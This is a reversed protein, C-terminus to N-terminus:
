ADGASATGAPASGASPADAASAEPVTAGESEEGFWALLWAWMAHAAARAATSRDEAFRSRWGAVWVSARARLAPWAAPHAWWVPDPHRWVWPIAAWLLVLYDVRAPRPFAFVTRVQEVTAPLTAITLVAFLGLWAIGWGRARPALLPLFVFPVWKAATTLAWLLGALRPGSIQAAWLMFVLILNVNGTDVNAAIPFALLVVAAATALPRRSYAWGGTWFLLILTAGRWAFWAADWPLLAWPLFLPLMWPAYVYPMFPGVATYPDGGALWIRVSAWYALADAGAAEGRALLGAGFVGIVVGMVVLAVMRRPDRLRSVQQRLARRYLGAHRRSRRAIAGSRSAPRGGPATAFPPTAASGTQV